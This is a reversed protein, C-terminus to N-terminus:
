TGLRARSSMVPKFNHKSLGLECRVGRPPREAEDHPHPCSRDVRVFAGTIDAFRAVERVKESFTEAVALWFGVSSAACALFSDFWPRTLDAELLPALATFMLLEAGAEVPQRTKVDSPEIRTFPYVTDLVSYAPRNLQPFWSMHGLIASFYIPSLSADSVLMHGIGILLRCLKVRAPALYMGDCVDIGICPIGEFSHAATIDKEAARIVGARDLERDFAGVTTTARQVNDQTFVILDDTAPRYVQSLDTPAVSDDALFLDKQLGAVVCRSLLYSQAIFSSWSFGMPFTDCRPIVQSLSRLPAQGVYFCELEDVSFGGHRALDDLKLKPRGFWHRISSLLRLQDSDCRAKRKSVLM